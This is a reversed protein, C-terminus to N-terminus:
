MQTDIKKIITTLLESLNKYLGADTPSKKRSLSKMPKVVPGNISTGFTYLADIADHELLNNRVNIVGINKIKKISSIQNLLKVIRNSNYYFAETYIEMDIKIEAQSDNIKDTNSTTYGTSLSRVSLKRSKDKLPIKIEDGGLPSKFILEGNEEDYSAAFEGNLLEENIPEIYSYTKELRSLRRSVENLINRESNNKIKIDTLKQTAILFENRINTM